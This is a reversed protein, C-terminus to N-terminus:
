PESVRSNGAWKGHSQDSICMKEPVVLSPLRDLRDAGIPTQLQVGLGVIRDGHLDILRDLDAEGAYRVLEAVERVPALPADPMAGDALVIPGDKM